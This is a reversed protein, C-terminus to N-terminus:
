AQRGRQAKEDGIMVQCETIVENREIVLVKTKNVNVKMGKREFADNMATIMQQLEQTSSAVLM